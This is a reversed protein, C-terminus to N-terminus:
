KRHILTLKRTTSFTASDRIRKKLWLHLVDPASLSGYQHQYETSLGHFSDTWYYKMTEKQVTNWLLKPDPQSLYGSV